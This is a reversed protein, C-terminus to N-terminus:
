LAQIRASGLRAATVTVEVLVEERYLVAQVCTRPPATYGSLWEDWVQNFAAYDRAMEKLYITTTLIAAKSSEAETLLREITALTQQTQAIIDGDLDDALQGALYVTDQFIAVESFRATTHLYEVSM